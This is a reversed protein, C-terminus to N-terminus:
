FKLTYSLGVELAESNFEPFASYDRDFWDVRIGIPGLSKLRLDMGAGTQEYEDTGTADTLTFDLAYSFDNLEHSLGLMYSTDDTTYLEEVFTTELDLRTERLGLTLFGNEWVCRTWSGEVYSMAFDSERESNRSEQNFGSLNFQNRSDYDWTLTGLGTVREDFFLSPSGAEVLDSGPM